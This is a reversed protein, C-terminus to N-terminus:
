RRDGFFVAISEVLRKLMLIVLSTSFGVIFPLLLLAAQLRVSVITNPTGPDPAARGISECFAVFSDFGFPISLVLGLFSGLVIRVALLSKDTLDFTVDTQISLANVSLFAIAGLGGLCITWSLYALLLLTRDSTLTAFVLFILAVIIFAVPLGAILNATQRLQFRSRLPDDLYGVLKQSRQDLLDWEEVTPLRGGERYQLQNLTGFSFLPADEPLITVGETLLFAKLSKLAALQQIFRMDGIANPNYYPKPFWRRWRAIDKRNSAPASAVADDASRGNSPAPATQDLAGSPPADLPM